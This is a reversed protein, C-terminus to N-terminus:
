VIEVLESYDALVRDATLLKMSECMAQAVLMRDFPDRHIGPLHRVRAAHIHSIKLELMGAYTIESALQSMDITLKGSGNKIAIEWISVSSVFVERSAGIRARAPKSLKRSGQLCWLLIHTDLLLRM